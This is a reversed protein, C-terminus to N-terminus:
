AKKKKRSKRKLNDTVVLTKNDHLIDEIRELREISSARERSFIEAIIANAVAMGAVNSHAFTVGEFPCLISVQSMAYLPSTKSDTISIIKKGAKKAYAVFEITKRSYRPFSIAIIIDEPSINELMDIPETGIQNVCYVKPIIKNLHYYLFHLISFTNRYSIIYRSKAELMLDVFRNFDIENLSKVLKDLNSIDNQISLQLATQKEALGFIKARDLQGVVKIKELVIQRLDALLNPYGKYGLLKAFRVVTAPTTKCNASLDDIVLYSAIDSNTLIYRAINQQAPTFTNFDRELKEMISCSTARKKPM